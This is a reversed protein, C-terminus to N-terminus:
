GQAARATLASIAEERTAYHYTKLTHAFGRPIAHWPRGAGIAEVCAENACGGEHVYGVITGEVSVAGHKNITTM